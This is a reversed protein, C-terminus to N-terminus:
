LKGENNTARKTVSGNTTVSRTPAVSRIRIRGTLRTQAVAQQKLLPYRDGIRNEPDEVASRDLRAVQSPTLVPVWHYGPELLPYRDGIKNEPVEVATRSLRAVHGAARAPIWHYGPELLPYRDSIKSEPDDYALVGSASSLLIAAAAMIIKKSKSM